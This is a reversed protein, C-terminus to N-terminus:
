YSISALFERIAANVPEPNTMNVAHAGAAVVVGSAGPLGEALIEACEMSIATDNDGHVVLAPIDIDGLRDTIDDRSMLCRYPQEIRERPHSRWHSIWAPHHDADDIIIAAIAEALEDVPGASMWTEIMQDYAPVIEPAEVGAQTDLLILGAVREPALLAARLSIFGGQSMGGLVAREIVLHDLLALLDRASDWYTFPQGDFETDGFGREDWAIVRYEDRLAAVQADFMTHNMLFGHSLVVVPGDGGTDEFRIRQGNVDAFPM